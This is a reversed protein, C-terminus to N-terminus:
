EPSTTPAVPPTSLPSKGHDRRPTCPGTAATSSHSARPASRSAKPARAPFTGNSAPDTRWVDLRAGQPVEAKRTLVGPQQPFGTIRFMYMDASFFEEKASATRTAQSTEDM